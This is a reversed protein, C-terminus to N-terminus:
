WVEKCNVFGTDTEAHVNEATVQGLLDNLTLKPKSLVIKKDVVNMELETGDALGVEKAFLKPIRVGISNGWQRVNTRMSTPM